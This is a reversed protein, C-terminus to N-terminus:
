LIKSVNLKNKNIQPLEKHLRAILEKNTTDKAVETDEGM